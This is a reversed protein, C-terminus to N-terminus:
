HWNIRHGTVAGWLRAAASVAVLAALALVESLGIRTWAAPADSELRFTGNRWVIM